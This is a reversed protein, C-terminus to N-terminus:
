PRGRMGLETELEAIRKAMADREAKLEEPAKAPKHIVVLVILMVPWFMGAFLATFGNMFADSGAYNRAGWRTIEETRIRSYVRRAALLAAVPYAALILLGAIM